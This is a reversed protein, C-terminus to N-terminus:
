SKVGDTMDVLYRHWTGFRFGSPCITMATRKASKTKSWAAQFNYVNATSWAIVRIHGFAFVHLFHMSSGSSFTVPIIDPPISMRLCRRLPPVKLGDIVIILLCLLSAQTGWLLCRYLGSLTTSRYLPLSGM